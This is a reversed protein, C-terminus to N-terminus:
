VRVFGVNFRDTVLGRVAQVTLVYPLNRSVPTIPVEFSFIGDATDSAATGVDIVTTAGNKVQVAMSTYDTVRQGGEEVWVAIRLSVGDDALVHGLRREPTLSSAYPRFLHQEEDLAAYPAPNNYRVLYEEAGGGATTQDFDFYYSGPLDTADEENLDVQAVGVQWTTGTWYRNDSRRRIIATPTQGTVGAGLGDVLLFRLRVSSGLAHYVIM